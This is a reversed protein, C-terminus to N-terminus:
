RAVTLAVKFDFGKGTRDIRGEIAKHGPGVDAKPLAASALLVWRDGIRAAVGLALNHPETADLSAELKQPLTLRPAKGAPTDGAVFALMEHRVGSVMDRGLPTKSRWLDPIHEPSTCALFVAVDKVIRQENEKPLGFRAKADEDAWAPVKLTRSGSGAANLSVTVTTYGTKTREPPPSAPASEARRARMAAVVAAPVGALKLEEVMDDALDFAEERDRIADLIEREGTGGAVMRVIDENTLPPAGPADALALGAALVCAVLRAARM